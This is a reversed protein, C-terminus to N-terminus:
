IGEARSDSRRGRYRSLLQALHGIREYSVLKCLRDTLGGYKRYLLNFLWYSMRQQRAEPRRRLINKMSYIQRYMWLYGQYLEEPTM